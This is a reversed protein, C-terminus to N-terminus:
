TVRFSFFYRGSYEKLKSLCENTVGIGFKSNIAQDLTLDNNLIWVPKKQWSGSKQDFRDCRFNRMVGSIFIISVDYM